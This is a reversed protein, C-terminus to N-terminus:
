LDHISSLNYKWWFSYQYWHSILLFIKLVSVIFRPITLVFSWCVWWNSFTAHLLVCVCFVYSLSFHMDPIAVSLCFPM